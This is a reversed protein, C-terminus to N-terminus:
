LWPFVIGSTPIRNPRAVDGCLSFEHGCINSSLFAAHQCSAVTRNTRKRFYSDRFRFEGFQTPADVVGLPRFPFRDCICGLAHLERRSLRERAIPAPFVVPALALCSEIGQWLEDGLDIPEVNM